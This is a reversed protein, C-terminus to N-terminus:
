LTATVMLYPYTYTKGPTARHLFTGPFLHGIGAGFQLQKSFAYGLIGDLETGVFRGAAGSAQRAIATGSSNYLADHADALWYSGFRAVANWKPRPKLELAGRAHMINKWGVQDTLGYKDHGSPFLQDFTGRRGDTSNADGTAYNFEAAVRPKWPVPSFARGLVWHGAWADIRDTGLSGQERAVELSYDFSYPLKGLWRFGAVTFDLNGVSGTETKQRQNLRWFLYPEIRSAPLVDDLGGYLGHLNNGPVHDGVDGDHLAVPSSAFADLRYKGQHLSLRVADFSRATNTWNSSGVLREEGLNLEQRGFRLSAHERESDGFQVFALRLDFTDQFPPAYPKLNKGEVRGDQMQFQFRVWRLPNLWMNLRLRNLLYADTADPQFNAGAFGELRAREEGSLCLWAPLLQNPCTSSGPPAVPQAVAVFPLLAAFCTSLLASRNM